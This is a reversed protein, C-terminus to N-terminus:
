PNDSAEELAPEDTRRRSPVSFAFVSGKEESFEAWARGGISEVTERVISLGLGTGEADTVTADHARYFEEFLRDRKEPAVGIGNDCVRIVVERDRRTDPGEVSAEIAVWREGKQGDSYKIANSVYNMLCLEVTAADVEIQPLDDAIRVEVGKAEAAERLERVAETAAEPLLVNHGHRAETRSIAELNDLARRLGEANRRIIGTFVHREADPTPDQDLMAAASMVAHVKNKLEHAITRNFKRLREERDKVDNDSLRLFHSMTAQRILEMGQAIRQWCILFDRRPYSEPMHEACDTLFDFIIEGLMEYEKLIEYADFGQEHRLAGLEMAKAVVPAEDDINKGPQRLYGAIGEILLPVHNLLEHTPFVKRKSIAVRANIRELWQSVLEQKAARLRDSLQAAL